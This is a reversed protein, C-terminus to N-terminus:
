RRRLHEYGAFSSLDLFGAPLRGAKAFHGIRTLQVRPFV